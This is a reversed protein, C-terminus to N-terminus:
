NCAEAHTDVPAFRALWYTGRPFVTRKRGDLWRMRADRYADLFARFRVIAGVVLERAGAFRPRLNRRPERNSPSGRWSQKRVARRGLVRKGTRIREEAIAREVQEVGARVAARIEDAPGLEPPIVLDLEVAEPMVGQARFFHVPRRARLSRKAMLQVYGNVGPWQDAREVLLDKVPNSAAYVLKDIVAEPTLLETLCPEETAWLNEWRGWRANQCRALMKHFHETFQPVRGHRDFLITHHHNSEAVCLIIEIEFRQAAEALCYTFAQNTLADPRLLFQRQTCRRTLLYFRRPLVQRPRSM